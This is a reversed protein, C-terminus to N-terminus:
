VHSLPTRLEGGLQGDNHSGEIDCMPFGVAPADEGLMRRKFGSETCLLLGHGKDAWVYLVARKGGLGLVRVRDGRRYM